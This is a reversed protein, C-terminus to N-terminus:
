PFNQSVKENKKEKFDTPRIRRVPVNGLGFTSQPYLPKSSSELSSSFLMEHVALSRALGDSLKCNNRFCIAQQGVIYM